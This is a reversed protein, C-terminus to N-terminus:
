ASRVQSKFFYCVLFRVYANLCKSLLVIHTDSINFKVVFKISLQFPVYMERPM